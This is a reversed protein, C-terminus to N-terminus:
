GDEVIHRFDGSEIKDIYRIYGSELSEDNIDSFENRDSELVSNEENLLQRVTKIESM